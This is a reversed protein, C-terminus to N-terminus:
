KNDESVLLCDNFGANVWGSTVLEDSVLWALGLSLGLGLGLMILRSDMVRM